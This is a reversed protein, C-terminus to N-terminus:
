LPAWHSTGIKNGTICHMVSLQIAELPDEEHKYLNSWIYNGYELILTIYSLYLQLLPRRSFRRSHFKLISLHKSVMAVM